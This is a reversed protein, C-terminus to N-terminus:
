GWGFLVNLVSLPYSESKIKSIGVFSLDLGTENCNIASTASVEFQIGFQIGLSLSLLSCKLCPM